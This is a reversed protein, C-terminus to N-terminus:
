PHDRQKRKRRGPASDGLDDDQDNQQDDQEFPQHGAETAQMSDLPQVVAGAFLTSLSKMKLADWETDFRHAETPDDTILLSHIGDDIGQFYTRDQMRLVYM